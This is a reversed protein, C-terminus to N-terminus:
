ERKVNSWQTSRSVKRESRRPRGTSRVVRLAKRGSNRLLISSDAVFTSHRGVVFGDAAQPVHEPVDVRCHLDDAIGVQACIEVREHHLLRALAAELDNRLRALM